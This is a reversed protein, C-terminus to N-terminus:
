AKGHKIREELSHLGNTCDSGTHNADHVQRWTPNNFDIKAYDEDFQKKKKQIRKILQELPFEIIRPSM